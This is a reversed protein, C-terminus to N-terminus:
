RIQDDVHNATRISATGGVNEGAVQALHASSPCSGSAPALRYVERHTHAAFAVLTHRTNDTLIGAGDTIHFQSVRDLVFHSERRQFVLGAFKHFRTHVRGGSGSFARHM